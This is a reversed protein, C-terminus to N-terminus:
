RDTNGQSLDVISLNQGIIARLAGGAFPICNCIQGGDLWKHTSVKQLPCFELSETNELLCSITLIGGDRRLCAQRSGGNCVNLM